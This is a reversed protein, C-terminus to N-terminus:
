ERVCYGHVNVLSSDCGGCLLHSSYLVMGIHEDVIWYYPKLRVIWLGAGKYEETFKLGASRDTELYVYRLCDMGQPLPINKLEYTVLSIADGKRFRSVDPTPSPIPTAAPGCGVLVLALLGPLGLLRKM